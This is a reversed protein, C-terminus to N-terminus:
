RELLELAAHKLDLLDLLPKVQDANARGAKVLDGLVGKLRNIESISAVMKDGEEQLVKLAEALDPKELLKRLELVAYHPRLEPVLRCADVAPDGAGTVLGILAELSGLLNLAALLHPTNGGPEIRVQTESELYVSNGPRHWSVRVRVTHDGARTFLEGEHGRLLTMSHHLVEGPKLTRLRDSDMGRLLPYFPRVPTGGPGIV